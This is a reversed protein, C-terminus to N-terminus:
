HCQAQSTILQNCSVAERAVAVDAADPTHPHPTHQVKSWLQKSTLITIVSPIRM